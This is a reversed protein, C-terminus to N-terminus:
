KKGSMMSKFRPDDLVSNGDLPSDEQIHIATESEQLKVDKIKTDFRGKTLSNGIDSSYFTEFMKRDNSTNTQEPSEPTTNNIRKEIRSIGNNLQDSLNLIKMSIDNISNKIDEINNLIESNDTIEIEDINSENKFSKSKNFKSLILNISNTQKEMQMYFDDTAIDVSDQIMKKLKKIDM